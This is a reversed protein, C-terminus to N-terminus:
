LMQAMHWRTSIQPCRTKTGVTQSEAAVGGGGGGGFLWVKVKAMVKSDYSISVKYKANISM